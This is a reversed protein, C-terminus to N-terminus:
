LETMRALLAARADYDKAKGSAFTNKILAHAQNGEPLTPSQPTPDHEVLLKIGPGPNRAHLATLAFLRYTKGEKKPRNALMDFPNSRYKRWDVSFGDKPAKDIDRCVARPNPGDEGFDAPHPVARYLTDSDPIQEVPFTKYEVTEVETKDM